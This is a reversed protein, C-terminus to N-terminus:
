VNIGQCFLLRMHWDANKTTSGAAAAGYGQLLVMQGGDTATKM